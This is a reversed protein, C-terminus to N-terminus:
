FQNKHQIQSDLGTLTFVMFRIIGVMKDTMEEDIIPGFKIKSDPNKNLIYM